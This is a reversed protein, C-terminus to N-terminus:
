IIKFDIELSKEYMSNLEQSTQLLGIREFATQDARSRTVILWNAMVRDEDEDPSHQTGRNAYYSAVDIIFEDLKLAFVESGTELFGPGAEQVNYDWYVARVGLYDASNYSFRGHNGEFDITATCGQSRGTLSKQEPTASFLRGRVVRGRLILVGSIIEGTPDNGKPTIKADLITVFDKYYKLRSNEWRVECTTSAWSWTPARWVEPRDSAANTTWSLDRVLTKSWLGALYTGLQPPMAKALGQLAPFIDMPFTLCLVTYSFVILHWCRSLENLSRQSWLRPQIENKIVGRWENTGGILSCECIFEEICEWVLESKTFHVIRPSLLREQLAWGRTLLPFSRRIFPKHDIPHARSYFGREENTAQDVLSWRMLLPKYPLTVFCGGRSDASHTASLTLSANAYIEAMKSGEHRWDDECDQIICLSDIWIYEYGLRYAFSVAEQFTRPLDVWLKGSRYRELTESTTKIMEKTGWCHSLCVYPFEEDSSIHLKINTPGEICLVRTPLKSWTRSCAVHCNMCQKIRELVWAVAQDSGTYGSIAGFSLASHVPFSTEDTPATFLEIEILPDNQKGREWLKLNISRQTRHYVRPSWMKLNGKTFHVWHKKGVDPYHHRLIKVTMDCWYCGSKAAEELLTFDCRRKREDHDCVDCDTKHVELEM